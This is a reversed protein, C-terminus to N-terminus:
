FINLYQETSFTFLPSPIKQLTVALAVIELVVIEKLDDCFLWFNGLLEKQKQSIIMQTAPSFASIGASFSREGIQM